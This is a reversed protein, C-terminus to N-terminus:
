CISALNKCRKEGDWNEKAPHVYKWNKWRQWQLLKKKKKKEKAIIDENLGRRMVIQLTNKKDGWNIKEKENGRKKM